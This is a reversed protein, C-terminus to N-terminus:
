VVVEHVSVNLEDGERSAILMGYEPAAVWTSVDETLPESAILISSTGNDRHMEWGGDATRGYGSGVTYWLTTFDFEREAAFFSGDDPYWGYDFVYRTAVLSRGDSLVLNVPSQTHIDHRERLDGVIRLAIQVAAAMEEATCEGFPDDLQALTLAYFWETDTNGEILASLHPGIYEVLDFRMKSFDFLDGNQALAFAAGEFHFPHVNFPGVRESPEYIVGRVHAILATASLKIALAKLNRDFMPVGPTRYTFPRFPDASHADWAALGFGGLNMLQMHRPDTAQRVLSAEPGYLLDDVSAPSGLYALARCM